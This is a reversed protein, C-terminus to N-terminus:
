DAPVLPSSRVKLDLDRLKPWLPLVVSAALRNSAFSAQRLNQFRGFAALDTLDQNDLELRAVASPWESVNCRTGASM